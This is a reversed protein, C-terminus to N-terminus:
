RHTHIHTHAHTRSHTYIHTHRHTDTHTDTHTHTQRDTRTDRALSEESVITTMTKFVHYIICWMNIINVKAKM